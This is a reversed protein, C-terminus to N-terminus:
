VSFFSKHSYLFEQRLSGYNGTVEITQRILEGANYMMWLAKAQRRRREEIISANLRSQVIIERTTTFENEELDPTNIPDTEQNAEQTENHDEDKVMMNFVMDINDDTLEWRKPGLLQSHIKIVGTPPTREFERSMLYHYLKTLKLSRKRWINGKNDFVRVVNFEITKDGKHAVEKTISFTRM